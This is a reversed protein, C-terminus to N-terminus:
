GKRGEVFMLYDTSPASLGLDRLLHTLQGRHYTGHNACHILIDAFPYSWTEGKINTYTLDGDLQGPTLAGMFRQQDKKVSEWEARFAKGGHTAPFDPVSKASQGKWRDHWLREVGVVHRLLARGSGFSGGWKRDLQEPTVASLADFVRDTAWHHFAFLRQIHDKNVNTM